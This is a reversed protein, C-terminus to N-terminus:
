CVSQGTERMAIHLLNLLLHLLPINGEQCKDVKNM